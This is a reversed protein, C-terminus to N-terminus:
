LSVYSEIPLTPMHNSLLSEADTKRERYVCSTPIRETIFFIYVCAYM